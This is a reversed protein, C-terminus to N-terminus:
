WDKGYNPPSRHDYKDIIRNACARQKVSMVHADTVKFCVSEIFGAEWDTVDNEIKELSERLQLDSIEPTFKSQSNM